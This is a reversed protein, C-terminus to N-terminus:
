CSGSSEDNRGLRAVLSPTAGTMADRELVGLCGDVCRRGEALGSGGSVGLKALDSRRKSALTATRLSPRPLSHVCSMDM